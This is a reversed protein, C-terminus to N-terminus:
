KIMKAGFDVGGLIQDAMKSQYSNYSSAYKSEYSYNDMKIDRYADSVLKKQSAMASGTSSVGLSGIRARRTALQEELLNKKKIENMRMQYKINRAEQKQANTDDHMKKVGMAASAVASAVVVGAM